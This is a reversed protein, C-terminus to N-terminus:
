TRTPANSPGGPRVSAKKRAACCTAVPNTNAEGKGGVDGAPEWQFNSFPDDEEEEEM